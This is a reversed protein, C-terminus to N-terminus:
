ERGAIHGAIYQACDVIGVLIGTKFSPLFPFGAFYLGPYDRSVGRPADPPAAPSLTLRPLSLIAADYGYGVGWIITRIGEAALDLATIDPAQYGEMRDPIEEPPVDLGAREIYADIFGLVLKQGRDAKELNEKLDPALIMKGDMFDLAHGLLIVGDCAFQHLNLAHGGDKGSISPAVFRKGMFKFQEFPRDFFGSELLWTFIDKGRYRRPAHPAAGTALYVKRGSQYLEEAVQAGSQASGVVLVAGPPLAESNKYDGTHLQRISAPIKAAFEPRNKASFVGNAVVVNRARYDKDQTHVLFGSGDAPQISTVRTNFAVPLGHRATYQEFRRVIEARTMFGDPDPGDYEGAPLLFTWNPTVFTFSDWRENRWANGPLASRELVIHERGHQKLFYSTSLGAQGGGVIVTEITEVM